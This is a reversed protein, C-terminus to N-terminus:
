NTTYQKQDDRENPLCGFQHHDDFDIRNPDLKSSYTVISGVFWDEQGAGGGDVAQDLFHHMSM